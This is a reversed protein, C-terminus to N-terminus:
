KQLKETTQEPLTMDSTQEPLSGRGCPRKKFASQQRSALGISTGFNRERRGIPHRLTKFTM